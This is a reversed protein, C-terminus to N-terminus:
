VVAVALKLPLAASFHKKSGPAQTQTGVLFQFNSAAKSVNNHKIYSISQSSEAVSGSWVDVVDVVSADSADNGDNDIVFIVDDAAVLMVFTGGDDDDADVVVFAVELSLRWSHSWHKLSWMM